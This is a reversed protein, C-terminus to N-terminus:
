PQRPLMFPYRADDAYPLGGNGFMNEEEDFLSYSGKGRDTQDLLRYSPQNSEGDGLLNYKQHRSYFNGEPKAEETLKTGSNKNMQQGIAAGSVVGAGINAVDGTPPALNSGWQGTWPAYRTKEAEAKQQDAWMNKEENSRLAGLGAGVLMAIAMPGM